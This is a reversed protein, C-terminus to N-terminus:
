SRSSNGYTTGAQHARRINTTRTPIIVFLEFAILGLSKALRLLQIYSFKSSEQLSKFDFGDWGVHRKGHRLVVAFKFPGARRQSCKNAPDRVNETGPKPSESEVDDSEIPEGRVDERLRLIGQEKFSVVGERTILVNIAIRM